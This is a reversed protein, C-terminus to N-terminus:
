FRGVFLLASSSRTLLSLQQGIKGCEDESLDANHNAELRVRPISICLHFSMLLARLFLLM